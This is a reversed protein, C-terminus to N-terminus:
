ANGVFILNFSPLPTRSGTGDVGPNSQAVGNRHHKKATENGRYETFYDKTILTRLRKRSDNKESNIGISGSGGGGGQVYDIANM